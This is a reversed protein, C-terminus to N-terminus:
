KFINSSILGIYKMVPSPLCIGHFVAYFIDGVGPPLHSIVMLQIRQARGSSYYCTEAVLDSFSNDSDSKNM